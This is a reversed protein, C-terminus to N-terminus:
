KIRKKFHEDWKGPNLTPNYATIVWIPDVSCQVHLIREGKTMGFILCSPGYKDTPYSEIIEGSLIVDAVEKPSINREACREFAHVTFRYKGSAVRKRIDKIM